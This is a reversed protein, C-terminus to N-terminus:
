RIRRRPDGNGRHIMSASLPAITPPTPTAATKRRSDSEDSSSGSTTRRGRAWHSDITRRRSFTGFGTAAAGAAITSTTAGPVSQFATGLPGDGGDVGEGGNVARAPETGM